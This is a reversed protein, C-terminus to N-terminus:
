SAERSTNLNLPRNKFYAEGRFLLIFTRGLIKLDNQLSINEIYKLDFQYREKWPLHINGSVQALGTLGPRVLYRKQEHETMQDLQQRVSPRPGVLSMEGNLVNILQPLEDIKFRRLWYGVNTVDATKGIVPQNGVVRRKHTMTRMKIVNINTLNKGVREQRFFVPGKTEFKILLAFLVLFPGLLLLLLSSVGLDILRKFFHKYM